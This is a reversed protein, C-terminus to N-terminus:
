YNKEVYTYISVWEILCERELNIEIIKVTNHIKMYKTIDM